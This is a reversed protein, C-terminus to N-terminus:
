DYDYVHSRMLGLLTYRSQCTHRYGPLKGLRSAPLYATHTLRRQPHEVWPAVDRTGGSSNRAATLLLTGSKAIIRMIFRKYSSIDVIVFHTNPPSPTPTYGFPTPKYGYGFTNAEEYEHQPTIRDAQMPILLLYRPLPQISLTDLDLRPSKPEISSRRHDFTHMRSTPRPVRLPHINQTRRRSLALDSKLLLTRCSFPTSPYFARTSPNPNCLKPSAAYVSLM